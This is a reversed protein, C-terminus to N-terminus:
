EEGGFLLELDDYLNTWSENSTARILYAQDNLRAFDKFKFGCDKLRKWAELKEIVKKIRKAKEINNWVDRSIEFDRELKKIMEELAVEEPDEYDKLAKDILRKAEELEEKNLENIKKMGGDTLKFTLTYNLDEPAMIKRREIEMIGCKKM